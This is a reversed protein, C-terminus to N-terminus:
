DGRGQGLKIRHQCHQCIFCSNYIGLLNILISKFNFELKSYYYKIFTDQLEKKANFNEGGFSVWQILWEKRHSICKWSLILSFDPMSFHLQEPDEVSGACKAWMGIYGLTRNKSGGDATMAWYITHSYSRALAKAANESILVTSDLAENEDSSSIGSTRSSSSSEEGDTLQQEVSSLEHHHHHHLHPQSVAQLTNQWREHFTQNILNELDDENMSHIRETDDKTISIQRKFHNQHNSLNISNNNSGIPNAGCTHNRHCDSIGGYM